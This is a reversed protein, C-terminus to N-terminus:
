AASSAVNQVDSPLCALISRRQFLDDTKLSEQQVERALRADRLGLMEAALRSEESYRFYIDALSDEDSYGQDDQRDLEDFIATYADARNRRKRRLGDSTRAELGRTSADLSETIQRYELLRAESKTRAKIESLEVRNYYCSSIESFTYDGRNMVYVLEVEENFHVTKKAKTNSSTGTTQVTAMPKDSEVVSSLSMASSVSMSDLDMDFSDTERILPAM